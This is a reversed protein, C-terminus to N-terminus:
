HICGSDLSLSRCVTGKVYPTQKGSVGHLSCFNTAEVSELPVHLQSLLAVANERTPTSV